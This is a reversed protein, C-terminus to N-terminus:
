CINEWKPCRKSGGWEATKGSKHVGNFTSYNINLNSNLVVIQGLGANM